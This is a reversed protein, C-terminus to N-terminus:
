HSISYLNPTKQFAVVNSSTHQLEPFRVSIDTAIDTLIIDFLNFITDSIKLSLQYLEGKVDELNRAQLNISEFELMLDDIMFTLPPKNTLLAIQGLRRQIVGIHVKLERKSSNKGLTYSDIAYRFRSLSDISNLTIPWATQYTKFLAEKDAALLSQTIMDDILYLVHRIAKGHAAQNRRVSYSLWEDLLKNIQKALIRYMPKHVKDARSSLIKMLSKIAIVENLQATELPHSQSLFHHTERRHFRLLFILQRLGIVQDFRTQLFRKNERAQWLFFCSAGFIIVLLLLILM